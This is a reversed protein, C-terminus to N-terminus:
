LTSWHLPIFSFPFFQENEGGFLFCLSSYLLLLVDLHHVLFSFELDIILLASKLWSFNINQIRYCHFLKFINMLSDETNQLNLLRWLWFLSLTTMGKALSVLFLAAILISIFSCLKDQPCQLTWNKFASTTFQFTPLVIEKNFCLRLLVLSQSCRM